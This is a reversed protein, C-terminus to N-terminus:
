ARSSISDIIILNTLVMLIRDRSRIDIMYKLQEKTENLLVRNTLQYYGDHIQFTPSYFAKTQKLLSIFENSVERFLGHVLGKVGCKLADM